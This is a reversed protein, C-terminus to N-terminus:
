FIKQESMLIKIFKNKLFISTVNDVVIIEKRCLLTMILHEFSPLLLTLLMLAINEEEIKM